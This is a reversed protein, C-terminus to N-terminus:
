RAESKFYQDLGGWRFFKGCKHCSVRIHQTGDKFTQPATDFEYSGCKPCPMEGPTHNERRLRKLLRRRKSKDRRSEKQDYRTPGYKVRNNARKWQDRPM